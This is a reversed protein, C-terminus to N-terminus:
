FLVSLLLGPVLSSMAKFARYHTRPFSGFGESSPTYYKQQVLGFWSKTLLFLSVYFDMKHKAFPSLFFFSPFSFFFLKQTRLLSVELLSYILNGAQSM